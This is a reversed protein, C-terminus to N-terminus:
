AKSCCRSNGMVTLALSARLLLSPCADVQFFRFRLTQYGVLRLSLLVLGCSEINTEKAQMLGELLEENSSLFAAVVQPKLLKGCIAALITLASKLLVVEEQSRGVRPPLAQIKAESWQGIAMVAAPKVIGFACDRHWMVSVLASLRADQERKSSSSSPGDEDTLMKSLSDLLGCRLLETVDSGPTKVWTQIMDLLEIRTAQDSHDLLQIVTDTLASSNSSSFLMHEHEALRRRGSDTARTEAWLTLLGSSLEREYKANSLWAVLKIILGPCRLLQCTEIRVFMRQVM